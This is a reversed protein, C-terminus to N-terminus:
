ALWNEVHLDPVRLFPRLNGTALTLDNALAIAAIRTDADGIPTAQRDLYARLRGYEEASAADFPLITRGVLARLM